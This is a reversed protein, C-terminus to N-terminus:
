NRKKEFPLISPYCSLQAATEELAVDNDKIAAPIGEDADDNAHNKCTM